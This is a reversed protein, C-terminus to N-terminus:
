MALSKKIPKGPATDEVEKGIDSQLPLVHCCCHKMIDESIDLIM